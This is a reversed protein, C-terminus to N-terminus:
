ASIVLMIDRGGTFFVEVSAHPTGMEGIKACAEALQTIDEQSLPFNICSNVCLWDPKAPMSTKLKLLEKPM